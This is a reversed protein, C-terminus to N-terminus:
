ANCQELVAADRDNQARKLVCVGGLAVDFRFANKPAVGLVHCLLARMPGAHSVVAINEEAPLARWWNTIRSQLDLFNEGGPPAVNVWDGMWANLEAAPIDDWARGEWGGFDIERLREDTHLPAAFHASLHAGLLRCRALPSSQVRAITAPLVEIIRAAGAEWDPALPWDSIGGCVGPPVQAQTHRILYVHM